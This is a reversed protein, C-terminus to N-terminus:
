FRAREGFVEAGSQLFEGVGESDRWLSRLGSRISIAIMYAKRIIMKEQVHKIINITIQFILKM